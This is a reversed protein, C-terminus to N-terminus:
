QQLSPDSSNKIHLEICSNENQSCAKHNSDDSM